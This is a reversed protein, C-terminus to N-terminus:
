ELIDWDENRFLTYPRTYIVKSVEDQYVCGNLWGRVTKCLVNHYLVFYYNNRPLHHLRSATTINTM